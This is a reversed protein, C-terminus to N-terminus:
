SAVESDAARSTPLETADPLTHGLTPKDERLEAQLWRLGKATVVTYPHAGAASVETRVAFYGRNILEQYPLTSNQMIIAMGRLLNIFRTRGIGGTAPALVKCAAGLDMYGDAAILDDYGEAKPTLVAVERSLEANTTALTQERELAAIYRHALQLETMPRAAQVEAERTRVAFYAQAAAVQPKNPDGNMAVLYAALRTLRYDSKPRGGLESPNQQSRLFVEAVPLGQNAASAMARKLPTTLNGWRAYGMLTQLDRTSWRGDEGMAVDFPSEGDPEDPDPTAILTKM